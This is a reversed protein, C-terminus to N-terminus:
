ASVDEVIMAYVRPADESRFLGVLRGGGLGAERFRAAEDAIDDEEWAAGNAGMGPPPYQPSFLKVLVALSDSAMNPLTVTAGFVRWRQGQRVFRELTLSLHGGESADSSSSFLTCGLSLHMLPGMPSTAESLALLNSLNLSLSSFQRNAKRSM